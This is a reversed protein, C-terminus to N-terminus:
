RGAARAIQLLTEGLAARDDVPSFLLQRELRQVRELVEALRASTWRPLIRSVPAKDNRWVAALVSEVPQGNEVRARLPALGLLRRQMARVVSFPAIGRSELLELEVSLRAIDGGLALDGPRGADSDSADAGLLDLVEEALEKPSGPSAGLYLAYKVLEQAIVAQDNAAAGAIRSALHPDIRLGEARGLEQVLLDAARGEPVYSQEAIAGPHAEALKLLASTKKLSGAVAVAPHEVAAAELLAETAALIEEGAPEIWLLRKGGFMSIAGAEDALLAPDSKLASGALSHKEAGLGACLREALARSGASNAGHFLYFRVAPDPRDVARGIGNRPLKM